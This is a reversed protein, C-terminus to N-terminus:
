LCGRDTSRAPNNPLFNPSHLRSTDASGIVMPSFLVIGNRVKILGSVCSIYEARVCALDVIGDLRCQGLLVGFLFLTDITYHARIMM